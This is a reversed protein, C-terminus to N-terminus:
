NVTEKQAPELEAEPVYKEDLDRLLRLMRRFCCKSCRCPRHVPDFQLLTDLEQQRLHQLWRFRARVWRARRTECNFDIGSSGGPRCDGAGTNEKPPMPSWALSIDEDSIM